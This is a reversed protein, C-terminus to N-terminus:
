STVQRGCDWQYRPHVQSAVSIQTFIFGLTWTRLLHAGSLVWPWSWGWDLVQGLLCGTGPRLGKQFPHVPATRGGPTVNEQAQEWPPTRSVWAVPSWASSEWNRLM